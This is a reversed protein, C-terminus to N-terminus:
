DEGRVITPEEDWWERPPVLFERMEVEADSTLEVVVGM